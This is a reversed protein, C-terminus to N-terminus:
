TRSSPNRDKEQPFAAEEPVTRYEITRARRAADGIPFASSRSVAGRIAEVMATLAPADTTSKETGLGMLKALDMLARRKDALKIRTRRVQKAGDGRGETHVEVTIESITAAQQRTLESFDTCLEGEETVRIFDLMNSFGILALEGAIRESTIAYRDAAREVAAVAKADAAAVHQAINPRKLMDSAQFRASRPSYGAAIAAKTANRKPDALYHKLFQAEQGSMARDNGKTKRAM